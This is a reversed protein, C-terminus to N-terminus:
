ADIVEPAPERAPDISAEIQRAVKVARLGDRGSTRPIEGEQAAEVFESLENKLPEGNQVTPREIVSEHRFRIDGDDAIYEPLSRRHIEVSQDMYDVDIQCEEVTVALDRIREQTIRSATLTALLGDEFGLQAIVHNHDSVGMASVEKVDADTMSLVIDIDHIMLDYIVSAKDDRDVPPGQRRAAVALPNVDALVDRFALIAPNYREVHGIQVVVGAEDAAKLLAQGREPNIVFPKEVLVNVGDDIAEQAVDAHHRTPVAISVADVSDLLTHQPYTSTKFRQAVERARDRDVDSVGMLEVGPLENYIRAHHTGISGVGIVGVRLRGTM